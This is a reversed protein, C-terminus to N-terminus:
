IGYQKFLNRQPAFEGYYKKEANLRTIIADEKNTFIGLDKKKGDISIAACWVQKQKLWYVGIFGSTNNRQKPKNQRNQQPTCLRLNNKRNNLPNQDIHDYEKFGLLQHMIITKRSIPDRTILRHYRQIVDECWCYDKIKDYDELDFYFENNTNSTWGIGYEGSLDYINKKRNMEQVKKLSEKHICGCSLTKGSNLHCQRVVIQKHQECNCECLWQAHHKGNCPTIYDEAQRVITLRSDPFGHECMKWGTMDIKVKIM